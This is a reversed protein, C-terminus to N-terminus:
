FAKLQRLEIYSPKGYRGDNKVEVKLYKAIFPKMEWKNTANVVLGDNTPVEQMNDVITWPVMVSWLGSQVPPPASSLSTSIQIHSTMGDSNGMQYFIIKQLQVFDFEADACMDMILYGIGQANGSLTWTSGYDKNKKLSMSEDDPKADCLMCAHPLWNAAIEPSEWRPENYGTAGNMYGYKTSKARGGTLIHNLKNTHDVRVKPVKVEIKDNYKKLLKVGEETINCGSVTLQKAVLRNEILATIGEDTISYSALELVDCKIQKALAALFDATVVCDQIKVEKIGPISLIVFEPTSVVLNVRKIPHSIGRCISNQLM